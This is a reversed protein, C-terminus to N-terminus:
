RDGRYLKCTSLRHEIESDVVRYAKNDLDGYTKKFELAMIGEPLNEISPMFHSEVLNDRMQRQLLRASTLSGTALEAFKVGARDATLDAFSFGSGGRSDDIEKFLGIVNATNSNASAAIAASAMFHQALDRRGLLTVTMIRPLQKDKANESGVLDNLNRNVVYIAVVFILARNEVIPNGLSSREEALSALPRLLKALSVSSRKQTTLFRTLERHYVLLRKKEDEPFLLDRGHSQLRDAVAPDWEYVLILKNKNLQVHKVKRVSDALERYGEHRSLVKHCYKGIIKVLWGPVSLDGIYVNGVAIPTSRVSLEATVNLFTGFPNKPLITTLRGYVSNSKFIVNGSIRDCHPLYTLAHILLLNLDRETLSVHGLDGAQLRHPSHEKLVRKIREMDDISLRESHTVLPETELALLLLILPLVVIGITFFAIITFLM